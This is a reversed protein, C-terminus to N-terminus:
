ARRLRITGGMVGKSGTATLTQGFGVTIIGTAAAVQAPRVSNIGNDQVMLQGITDAQPKYRSPLGTITCATSNSAATLPGLFELTIENGQQYVEVNVTPETTCGTLTGIFNDRRGNLDTAGSISTSVNTYTPYTIDVDASRFLM